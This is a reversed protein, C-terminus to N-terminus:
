SVAFSVRGNYGPADCMIQYYAVIRGEFADADSEVVMKDGFKPKVIPFEGASRLSWTNMQLAYGVAPPCQPDAVVKVEGSPGIIRIAKFGVQPMDSASVDCYMVKAGLTTEMDLFRDPHVVVVDPRGGHIWIKKLLLKIADECNRDTGVVRVGALRTPHKGRDQGFFSDVGVVPATEPIWAALGKPAQGFDGSTFLYSTTTLGGIAGSWTAEEITITAADPDVAAVTVQGVLVSGSTGDTTACELAQGVEFNIIDAEADLTITQSALTSTSKIRGIAGGGNGFVAVAVARNFADLAGDVEEKYAEVIAGFDDGAAEILEQEVSYLSYQKSRTVTFAGWKTPKKNGKAKEFRKSVGATHGYRLALVLNKGKFNTMKKLMALVPANEYMLRKVDKQPYLTKLIQDHTTPTAAAM